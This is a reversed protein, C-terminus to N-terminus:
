LAKGKAPQAVLPDAEPTDLESLQNMEKLIEYNRAAEDPDVKNLAFGVHVLVYDGPVVDPTYELCVTKVIGGFNAKAVRVGQPDREIELVKGPVALCM